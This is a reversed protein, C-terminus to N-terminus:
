SEACWNCKKIAGCYYIAAEFIHRLQVTKRMYQVWEDRSIAENLVNNALHKDETYKCLLTEGIVITGEVYIWTVSYMKGGHFRITTM